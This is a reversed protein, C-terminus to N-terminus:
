CREDPTGTAQVSAAEEDADQAPGEHGALNPGGAEEVLVDDPRGVREGAAEAIGTATDGVKDHRGHVVREDVHTIKGARRPTEGEEYREDSEYRSAQGQEQKAGVSGIALPTLSHNMGLPVKKGTGSASSNNIDGVTDGVPSRGFAVPQLLSLFGCGANSAVLGDEGRILHDVRRLALDDDLRCEGLDHTHRRRRLSPEVDEAVAAGEASLQGDVADQRGVIELVEGTEALRARGVPGGHEAEEVEGRPRQAAGHRVQEVM